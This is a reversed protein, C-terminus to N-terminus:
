PTPDCDNRSNGVSRSKSSSSAAVHTEKYLWSRGVKICCMLFDREVV